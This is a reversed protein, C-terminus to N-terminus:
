PSLTILGGVQTCHGPGMFVPFNGVFDPFTSAIHRAPFYCQGVGIYPTENVANFRQILPKNRNFSLIPFMVVRLLM